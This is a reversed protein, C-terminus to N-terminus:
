YSGGAAFAQICNSASVDVPKSSISLHPVLLRSPISCSEGGAGIETAAAPKRECNCQGFHVKRTM